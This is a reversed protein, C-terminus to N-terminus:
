QDRGGERVGGQIKEVVRAWGATAAPPCPAESYYAARSRAISGAIVRSMLAARENPSTPDFYYANEYGELVERAYPLDGALVLADLSRAARASAGPSEIMSSLIPTTCSLMELIQEKPVRGIPATNLVPSPLDTTMTATFGVVGRQLLFRCAAYVCGNSKHIADSTPNFFAGAYVTGEFAYACLDDLDPPVVDVRVSAIGVQDLIAERMWLTHVIFRDARLNSQKIIAGMVHQCIAWLREQRRRLSFNKTQQFHGAQHVYVVQPCWIGNTYTNQLSFEADPKLSAILRRRSNLDFVLRRLWGSKVDPRVVSPIHASEKLPDSRLLFIWENDEAFERVHRYSNELKTLAGVSSAAIDNVVIRV